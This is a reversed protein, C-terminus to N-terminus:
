WLGGVFIEVENHDLSRILNVCFSAISDSIKVRNKTIRLKKRTM